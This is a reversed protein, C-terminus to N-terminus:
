CSYYHFQLASSLEEQWSNSLWHLYSQSRIWFLVWGLSSLSLHSSSDFRLVLNVCLCLRNTERRETGFFGSGMSSARLDHRKWGKGERLRYKSWNLAEGWDRPGSLGWLSWWVIQHRKSAKCTVSFKSPSIDCGFKLSLTPHTEYTHWLLVNCIIVFHISIFTVIM